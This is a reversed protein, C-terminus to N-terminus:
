QPDATRLADYWFSGDVCFCHLGALVCALNTPKASWSTLWFMALKWSMLSFSAHIKMIIIMTMVMMMMMIMGVVAMAMAMVSVMDMAMATALAMAMAVAVAM